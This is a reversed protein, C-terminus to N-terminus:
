FQINLRVGAVVATAASPVAGPNFIFQLDPQAIFHAGFAAQYSLELIEEHHSSLAQGSPSILKDSLQTYSFAIGLIDQPRLQSVGRFNLGADSYFTVTNRDEPAIGIRAFGALGDTPHPGTHWLEQDVVFYISYNGRHSRRGATDAFDKSDFDGGLKYTGTLIKNRIAGPDKPKPHLVYGAELFLLVGDAESLSFRLNHKNNREPKGVDGSFVASQFYFSDDPMFRVRAGPAAIPFVPADLNQSVVPIAGFSSNLFLSAYDSNFFEADALLQGLRLSFTGHLLEQQFWADYLRVGDYTDINSLTNFDHVAKMTLSEGGAYIARISITADPWHALKTLDLELGLNLLTDAIVERSTGGVLNGLVETTLEVPFTVGRDIQSVPSDRSSTQGHPPADQARLGNGISLFILSALFLRWL